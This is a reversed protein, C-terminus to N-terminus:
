IQALEADDAAAVFADPMAAGTLEAFIREYARVTTRADFIRAIESPPRTYAAPDRLVRVIALALAGADRPPVSIGMGTVDIVDRVGPIDTSVVPTGCLMAEAQTMGFSETSNISPLVLVDIAEYFERLERDSLMGLHTMSAGLARMKPEVREYVNEGAVQATQGALVFRADPMAALVRPAADILTEIGKEEAFRGVFGILPGRSLDHREHLSPGEDSSANFELPPYISVVKDHFRKPLRASAAYGATNVIIRDSLKGTLYHSLRIAPTFLPRALGPPLEIDCHYTTVVPKGAARAAMAMLSGEFQPLHVHIVDHSAALRTAHWGYRPMFAGKSTRFLVPSRVIQAGDIMERRPLDHDYRSTLVTVEHGDEVLRRILRRAYITLGSIHPAYYTLSTLIRM